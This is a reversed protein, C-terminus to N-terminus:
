ADTSGKKMWTQWEEVRDTWFILDDADMDMLQDPQFRFSGALL